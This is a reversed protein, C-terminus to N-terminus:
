RISRKPLHKSIRSPLMETLLEKEKRSYLIMYTLIWYAIFLTGLLILLPGWRPPIKILNKLANLLPMLIAIIIYGYSIQTIYKYLPSATLYAVYISNFIALLLTSIAWVTMAAEASAYGSNLIAITIIANAIGLGLTMLAPIRVKLFVKPINKAISMTCFAMNGLIGITLLASLGEFSGGVWAGLFEKSFAIIFAAPFAFTITIMKMGTKLVNVLEENNSDSYCKFFLPDTSDTITFVATNMMSVVTVILAFEGQSESGLSLNVLVLSLQIYLLNGINTVTSWFGLSGIKKFLERDYLNRSIHMRGELHKAMCYLLIFMIISSVIYGLGIIILSPTSFTFLIIIITVQSITYAFKAFYLLYLNNSSFFVGNFPISLSVAMSSVIIMMFLLQVDLSDNAVAFINPSIFALFLGIPLFILYLKGLGFFSTSITKNAEDINGSNFALVTYREASYAVCETILQIYTSMTTALPIIAYSTIGLTGIYYPVMLVGVLAMALTRVINTVINLSTKERFNLNLGM